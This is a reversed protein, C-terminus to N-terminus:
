YNVTDGGDLLLRTDEAVIEDVRYANFRIGNKELYPAIPFTIDERDRWGVALWPNSPVFQFYDVANIVTIDHSKDLKNRLEFAAPMGGIGAGIVVIHAM